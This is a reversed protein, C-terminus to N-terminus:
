GDGIVLSDEFVHAKRDSTVYHVLAKVLFERSQSDDTRGELRHLLKNYGNVLVNICCGFVALVHCTREM